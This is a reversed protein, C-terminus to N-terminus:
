SADLFMAARIALEAFVGDDLVMKRLGASVDALGDEGELADFFEGLIGAAVSKVQTAPESSHDNGSTTDL